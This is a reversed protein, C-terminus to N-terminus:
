ACGQVVINKKVFLILVVWPSVSPSIFGKELLEQLQSKLERLVTPAMHYIPIFIPRTGLKLDICFDVERDLPMSLLNDLFMQLFDCVM